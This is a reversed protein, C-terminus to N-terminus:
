KKVAVNVAGIACSFAANEPVIFNIGHMEGLEKFVTRDRIIGTFAGTLVVDKIGYGKCTFVALM